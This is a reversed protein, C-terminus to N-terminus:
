NNWKIEGATEIFKSLLLATNEVDALSCVENYTHMNHLPVSVLGGPIGCRTLQFVHADTGTRTPEAVVKHPISNDSAIKKLVNTVNTDLTASVSIVPGCGLRREKMLEPAGPVYANCVDLAVAIDPDIAYTGTKGGIYGTEEGSAFHAYVDVNLDRGKLMDLAALIALMCIRDDFSKGCIKENALRIIESRYAVPTGIKVIDRLKDTSLGTDICLDGLKPKEDGSGSRLHPPVSTFVGHITENGYITVEASSLIATDIGGVSVVKLFGGECIQKVLFGVEDLHADLMLRLADRKGCRRIGVFSNAPTTFTEDFYGDCIAALEGFAEQERGSVGRLTSLAAATEFLQM